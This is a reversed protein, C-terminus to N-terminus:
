PIVNPAGQKTGAWQTVVTCDALPPTGQSRFVVTTVRMAFGGTTFRGPDYTDQGDVGGAPGRFPQLQFTGDRQITGPLDRTGHDNLLLSTAGPTHRVIGPNSFAGPAGGCGDSLETKEISYDGGVSLLPTPTSTGGGCGALALLTILSLALCPLARLNM